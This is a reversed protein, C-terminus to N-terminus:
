IFQSFAIKRKSVRNPITNQDTVESTRTNIFIEPTITSPYRTADPSVLAVGYGCPVIAICAGCKLATVDGNNM